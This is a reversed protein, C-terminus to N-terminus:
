QHRHKEGFTSLSCSRICDHSEGSGEGEDATVRVQVGVPSDRDMDEIGTDGIFTVGISFPISVKAETCYGYILLQLSQPEPFQLVYQRRLGFLTRRRRDSTHVHM